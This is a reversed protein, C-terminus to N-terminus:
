VTRSTRASMLVGARLRIGSSNSRSPPRLMSRRHFAGMRHFCARIAGTDFIGATWCCRRRTFPWWVRNHLWLGSGARTSRSPSPTKGASTTGTISMSRSHFCGGKRPPLHLVPFGATPRRAVAAARPLSCDWWLVCSAPPEDRQLRFSGHDRKFVPLVAPDGLSLNCEHSAEMLTGIGSLRGRNLPVADRCPYKGGTQHLARASCTGRCQSVHLCLMSEDGRLILRAAEPGTLRCDRPVV